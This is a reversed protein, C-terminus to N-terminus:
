NIGAFHRRNEPNSRYLWFPILIYRLSVMRCIREIQVFPYNIEEAILGSLYWFLADAGLWVYDILLEIIEVREWHSFFFGVVTEALDSAGRASISM